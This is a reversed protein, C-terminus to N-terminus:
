RLARWAIYIMGALVVGLLLGFVFFAAPTSGCSIGAIISFM